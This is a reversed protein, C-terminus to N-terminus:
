WSGCDIRGVMYPDGIVGTGVITVGDILLDGTGEGGEGVGSAVQVWQTTDEDTYWIFLYGSDSEFWLQNPGPDPPPTDSVVVGGHKAAWAVFAACLNTLSDCNWPGNPDWCEALSVLESVIANIQKPEIRADCNAPLATLECTAVFPIDPSRANQVEPPHTPVGEITRYVVAGASEIEPFIGPM